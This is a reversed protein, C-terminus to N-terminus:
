PHANEDIRCFRVRLYTSSDGAPGPPELRFRHGIMGLIQSEQALLLLEDREKHPIKWDILKKKLKESGWRDGSQRYRLKLKTLSDLPLSIEM